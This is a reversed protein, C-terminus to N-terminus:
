YYAITIESRLVQEIEPMPESRDYFIYGLPHQVGHIVTGFEPNLALLVIDGTVLKVLDGGKPDIWEANVLKSKM